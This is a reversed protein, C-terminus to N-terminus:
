LWYGSGTQQLRHGSDGPQFIWGHIKMADLKCSPSIVKHESQVMRIVAFFHAESSADCVNGAHCVDCKWMMKLM